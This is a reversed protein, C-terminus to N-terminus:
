RRSSATRSTFRSLEAINVDAVGDGYTVMFTDGDVIGARMRKIRGGTM